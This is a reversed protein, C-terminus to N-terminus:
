SEKGGPSRELHIVIPLSLLLRCSSCPRHGHRQTPLLISHSSPDCGLPGTAWQLLTKRYVVETKSTGGRVMEWSNSVGWPIVNQNPLGVPVLTSSFLRRDWPAAEKLLGEPLYPNQGKSKANSHCFQQWHLDCLEQLDAGRRPLPCLCTWRKIDTLTEYSACKNLTM